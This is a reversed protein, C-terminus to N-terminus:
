DLAVVVDGDLDTRRVDVGVLDTLVDPHPHGFPNGAGTSIIAVAPTTAALFGEANTAGGHHPVKLVDVDILEPASLLRTQAIVEADGTLLASAGGDVRLGLVVSSENADLAIGGPPPSLVRVDLRGFRWASGEHVPQVDVGAAEAQAVVGDPDEVATPALPGIVLAGVDMDDFLGDLGAQHDDHPHSLVVLRLTDVDHRRLAQRLAVPDPGGDVLMWGATGDGVLVADGQGVDLAVLVVGEGLTGAPAGVLVVVVIAVSAVAGSAGGALRPAVVGARVARVVMWGLLGAGLVWPAVRDVQQGVSGGFTEAAWVVVSLPGGALRGVAVATTPGVTALLATAVGLVSGVAAAPVAVVNALLASAGVHGGVALLVPAVTAQAGITAALVTRLGNPGPILERVRPTVVLVGITAAVSLVFGIRGALLPDLLVALLVAVALLHATDRLRGLLAAVLVLSAMLAARLVSPEARVLVVFWWVTALSVAWGARRGVGFLLCAGLMGGVVLAVNSGSVAVLHSLGAADVADALSAPQGRVDGTVLGTLLSARAEDLSRGAVTRLRERLWTTTALWAPPGGLAHLEIARVEVAAGQRAFWAAADGDIAAALGAASAPAGMPPSPATSRLVVRERTTVPAEGPVTLTTVRAFAWWGGLAGPQPDGVMVVDLQVAVDSAAAAADGRVRQALPGGVVAAARGAGGIGAVVATLVAAVVTWRVQRGSRQGVEPGRRAVVGLMAGFLLVGALGIAWSSSVSGFGVWSGVLAGAWGAAAVVSATPGTM